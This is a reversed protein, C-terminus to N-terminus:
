DNEITVLAITNRTKTMGNINNFNREKKLPYSNEQENPDMCMYKYCNNDEDFRYGIVLVAHNSSGHNQYVVVGEPHTDLLERLKEEKGKEGGKISTMPNITVQLSQGNKTFSDYTYTDKPWKVMWSGDLFEKKGSAANKSVEQLFSIGANLNYNGYSLDYDNYAGYREIMMCISSAFCASSGWSRGKYYFKKVDKNGQNIGEVNNMRTINCGDISYVMKGNNLAEMCLSDPAMNYPTYTIINYNVFASYFDSNFTIDKNNVYLYTLKDCHSFSLSSFYNVNPSITVKTVEDYDNFVGDYVGSINTGFCINQVKNKLFYWPLSEAPTSETVRLEQGDTAGTFTLSNTDSDFVWTIDYANTKYTGKTQNGIVEYSSDIINSNVEVPNNLLYTTNYTTSPTETEQEQSLIPAEITYTYDFSNITNTDNTSASNNSTSNESVSESDSDDNDFEFEGDDNYVYDLAKSGYAANAFSTDCGDKAYVNLPSLITTLSIALISLRTFKKIM